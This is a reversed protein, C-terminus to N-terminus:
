VSWNQVSMKILLLHSFFLGLWVYILIFVIKIFVNTMKSLIDNICYMPFQWLYHCKYSFNDICLWHWRRRPRTVVSPFYAQLETTGQAKLHNCWNHVHPPSFPQTFHLEDSLETDLWAPIFLYIHASIGCSGYEHTSIVQTSLLLCQMHISAM